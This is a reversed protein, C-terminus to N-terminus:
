DENTQNYRSDLEKDLEVQHPAVVKDLKGAIADLLSDLVQWGKFNCRLRTEEFHFYQEPLERDINEILTRVLTWSLASFNERRIGEDSRLGVMMKELLIERSDLIERGPWEPDGAEMRSLYAPISDEHWHHIRGSKGHAGAGIGIYDGFSWYHLNHRCEFGPRAFNSIEYHRFKRTDMWECLANFQDLQDSEPLEHLMGERLHRDYLTGPERTLSYASIHPPDFEALRNLTRLLSDASQGPVNWIIDASWNPRSLQSVYKMAKLARHSDHIRGLTKLEEDQLSQIGFSFRTIGASELESLMAPSSVFEPNMEMSIEPNDECPYLAHIQELWQHIQEPSYLNPTGGGIYVSGLKGTGPHIQRARMQLEKMVADHYIESQASFQLTSFFDCYDCRKECFPVHIYISFTENM